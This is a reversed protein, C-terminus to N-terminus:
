QKCKRTGEILHLNVLSLFCICSCIFLEFKLDLFYLTKLICLLTIGAQKRETESCQVNSKVSDSNFQTKSTQHVSSKLNNSLLLVRSVFVMSSESVTLFFYFV